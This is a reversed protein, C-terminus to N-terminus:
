RPRLKVIRSVRELRQEPAPNLLELLIQLRENGSLKRYFERDAKDAEAFSRFRHATRQHTFTLLVPWNKRANERRIHIIHPM